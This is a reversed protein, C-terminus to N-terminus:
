RGRTKSKEDKFADGYIPHEWWPGDHYWRFPKKSDELIKEVKPSRKPSLGFTLMDILAEFIYKM